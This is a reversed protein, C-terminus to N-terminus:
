EDDAQSWDDLSGFGSGLRNLLEEDTETLDSWMGFSELKTFDVDETGRRIPAKGRKPRKANSGAKYVARTEGVAAPERDWAPSKCRPCQVPRRAARAYWQHRCRRCVLKDGIGMRNDYYIVV